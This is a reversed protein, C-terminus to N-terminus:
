NTTIVGWDTTSASGGDICVIKDLAVTIDRAYNEVTSDSVTVKIGVGSVFNVGASANVSNNSAQVGDVAIHRWTNTNQFATDPLTVTINSASTIHGAEDVTIYPLVFDKNTSSLTVKASEGYSGKTVGSHAHGFKIEDSGATDANTGALVLWKNAATLKLNEHAAKAEVATTNGKLASVETSNAPTIKGYNHTNTGSVAVYLNGSTDKKVAYNSNSSTYGTKVDFTFGSSYGVTIANGSVNKFILDGSSTGLGLKQTSDLKVPRWTDEIDDGSPILMWAYTDTGSEYCIFLDGVKAAQSAYTGATIVKYADGLISSEATPLNTITGNTGLTGKLVVAANVAAGIKNDVETKSYVDLGRKLTIKHGEATLDTLVNGTETDDVDLNPITPITISLTQETLATTHGYKDVTVKPIKIEGSVNTSNITVDATAGKTTNAGKAAHKADITVAGATAATPTLIVVDDDTTKVSTVGVDIDLSGKTLTLVGDVYSADVIVDGEGNIVVNTGFYDLNEWTTTGDGIKIKPIGGTIWEIGVEGKSLVTDKHTTWNNTTDNRLLLKTVLTNNSM